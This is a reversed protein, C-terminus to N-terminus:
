ASSQLSQTRDHKKAYDDKKAKLANLSQLYARLAEAWRAWHFVSAKPDFLHIPVHFNHINNM